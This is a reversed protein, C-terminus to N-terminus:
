MLLEHPESFTSFITEEDGDDTMKEQLQLDM